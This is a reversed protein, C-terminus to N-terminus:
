DYVEPASKLLRVEIFGRQIQPMKTAIQIAENLDRAQILFLEIFQRGQPALSGETLYVRGQQVQVTVAVQQEQLVATARLYGGEQLLENSALCAKVFWEDQESSRPQAESYVLFLYNM